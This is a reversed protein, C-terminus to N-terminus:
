DREKWTDPRRTGGWGWYVPATAPRAPEVNLLSLGLHGSHPVTVMPLGFSFPATPAAIVTLPRFASSHRPDPGGALPARSRPVGASLTGRGFNADSGARLMAILVRESIGAMRLEDPRDVSQDTEIVAVLVDDGLGARSLEIVDRVTEAEAPLGFGLLLLAITGSALAPLTRMRSLRHLSYEPERVESAIVWELPVSFALGGNLRPM